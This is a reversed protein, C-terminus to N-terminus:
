VEPANHEVQLTGGLFQAGNLEESRLCLTIDHIDGIDLYLPDNGVSGTDVAFRYERQHSYETRKRFVTNIGEFSGHFSTPDYYRVLHSWAHYRRAAIAAGFRRMFEPVDRIVVAHEGLELCREPILLRQRLDEVNGGM